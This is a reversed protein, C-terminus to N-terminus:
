GLVDVETVAAQYAQPGVTGLRTIWLLLYETEDADEITVTAKGDEVRGSGLRTTDDLSTPSASEAARIEFRIDEDASIELERVKEASDLTFMLGIGAKYSSASNGFQNRYTDTSWSTSPNGDIVNPASSSNEATGNSSAPQWSTVTTVPLPSLSAEDQKEASDAGSGGTGEDEAPPAAAESSRSAQAAREIADLQQSLPTNNRDNGLAGLMWVSLLVIAVVAVAGAGAMIQWRRRLVDPDPEDVTDSWSRESTGAPFGTDPDQPSSPGAGPTYSSSSAAAAGGGVGGAGASSGPYAGASGGSASRHARVPGGTRDTVMSRVTAASSVASGDLSRMALVASEPPVDPNVVTPDVLEDDDDRPAAEPRGDVHEHADTGEPLEVPWAGTLLAYLVAGLGRVDSRADVDPTVGPFALVARGDETLRVRDPSDLGLALNAEETRTAADSLGWVAGVASGPDPNAVAAALSTGPIWETVVIGGARGRIVDLVRSLGDSYVATLAVTRDLVGTASGPPTEGPLPDVFTLAVTRGLRKDRAKWFSQGAVGGHRELLEYRGGAVLGGVTLRPPTPVDGRTGRAPDETNEGM